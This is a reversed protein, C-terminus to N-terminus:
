PKVVWDIVSQPLDPVMDEPRPDAGDWQSYHHWLVHRIAQMEPMALVADAIEDRTAFRMGTRGDGAIFTVLTPVAQGIASAFECRDETSM